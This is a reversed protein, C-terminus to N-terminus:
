SKAGGESEFVVINRKVPDSVYVRGRADVAVDMNKTNPDFDASEIMALLKGSYDYIKARPGAKETVCLMNPGAVAVNTPNCCGSFGSPDPGTFKGMHGLLAGAPSYREVRHKGPNAVHIAGQADIGFDVVGNPIHLGGLPNDKGITNIYKGEFDFRHICRQASDGVLFSDKLFGISTVRGMHQSDKFTRAQRASGDFVEVQGIQGLWVRGDLSAAVSYPPSLTARRRLLKGSPDFEKVESDGAAYLRGQGDVAIGRLAQHFEAPGSGKGSIIRLQRYRM